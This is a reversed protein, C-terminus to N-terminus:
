QNMDHAVHIEHVNECKKKLNCKLLIRGDAGLKALHEEKKPKGVLGKIFKADREGINILHVCGCGIEKFDV